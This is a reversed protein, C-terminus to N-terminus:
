ITASSEGEEIPTVIVRVRKGIVHPALSGDFVCRLAAGDDYYSEVEGEVVVSDPSTEHVHIHDVKPEPSAHFMHCKHIWGSKIM